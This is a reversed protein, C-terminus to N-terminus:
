CCSCSSYGGVGVDDVRVFAILLVLLTKSIEREVGDVGDTLEGMRFSGLDTVGLVDFNVALVGLGDDGTVGLEAVRIVRLCAFSSIAWFVVIVRDAEFVKFTLDVREDISSGDFDTLTESFLVLAAGDFNGTLFVDCDIAAVLLSAVNFV